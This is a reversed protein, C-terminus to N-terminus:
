NRSNILSLADMILKEASTPRTKNKFTSTIAPPNIRNLIALKKLDRISDFHVLLRAGSETVLAICNHGDHICTRGLVSEDNFRGTIWIANVFKYRTNTHAKM